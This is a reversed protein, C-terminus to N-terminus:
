DALRILDIETKWDELRQRDEKTMVAMFIEYTGETVEISYHETYFDITADRYGRCYDAHDGVYEAMAVLLNERSLRKYWGLEM